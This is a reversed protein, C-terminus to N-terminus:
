LNKPINKPVYSDGSNVMVHFLEDAEKVSLQGDKTLEKYREVFFSNRSHSAIEDIEFLADGTVYVFNGITKNREFSVLYQLDNKQKAMAFDYYLRSYRDRDSIIASYDNYKVSVIFNKIQPAFMYTTGTFFGVAIVFSALYKSITKIDFTSLITRSAFLVILGICGTIIYVIDFFYPINQFPNLITVNICFSVMVIFFLIFLAKFYNSQEM